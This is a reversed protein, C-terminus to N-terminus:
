VQYSANKVASMRFYCTQSDFPYDSFKMNCEIMAYSKTSLTFTGSQIDYRLERNGATGAKDPHELFGDKLSNNTLFQSCNADILIFRKAM